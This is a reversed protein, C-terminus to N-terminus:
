PMSEGIAAAARVIARRTASHPEDNPEIVCIQPGRAAFVEMAMHEIDIRLKVALRLAAGDEDFPKWWRSTDDDMPDACDEIFRINGHAKAALVLLESDSM